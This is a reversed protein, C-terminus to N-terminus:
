SGFQSDTKGDFMRAPDKDPIYSGTKHTPKIRKERLESRLREFEEPEVAKVCSKVDLELDKIRRYIVWIAAM